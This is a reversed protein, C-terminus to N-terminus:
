RKNLKRKIINAKPYTFPIERIAFIEKKNDIAFIKIKVNFISDHRSDHFLVKKTFLVLKKKTKIGPKLLFPSSPQSIKINPNDIIEFYYKHEKNQTNQILTIYSNDVVPKENVIQINYLRTLKNINLLVLEKKLGLYFLIFFIGLIITIYATIKPRFFSAKEEKINITRESAWNVLSVEGYKGMIDTCADVCDLCNICEVQLGKRIDIHTPCIRVCAECTTCLDDPALQKAKNITKIGNDYIQGGRNNDYIPQITDNDYLVSQIRSYPCVYTCFDEKLFIIDYFLFGTLGIWAGMFITHDTINQTYVFFQEPPIFFWLANASALFALIISLAVIVLRKIKNITTSYDPEIQKNNIKKRLRFIKTEILDRFITLFITQPCGWGCFMRGAFVTIGFTGIILFMLLFPILYLEQMDFTVFLFHFKFDVFSLLLFHNGNITIWPIILSFITAFAFVYYRLYALPFAKKFNDIKKLKAM